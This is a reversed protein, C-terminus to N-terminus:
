ARSGTVKLTCVQLRKGSHLASLVEAANKCFLLAQTPCNAVCRPELNASLRHECLTCEDTIVPIFDMMLQKSNVEEPGVRIIKIWKTGIPIDNEQKCAVECAYCGVCLDLDALIGRLQAM